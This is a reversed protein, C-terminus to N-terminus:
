LRWFRWTIIFFCTSKCFIPIKRSSFSLFFQSPFFSFRHPLLSRVL